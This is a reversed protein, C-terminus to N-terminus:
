KDVEAKVGLNKPTCEDCVVDGVIGGDEANGEVYEHQEHLGRRLQVTFRKDCTPCEATNDWTEPRMARIRDMDNEVESGVFHPCKISTCYFVADDHEEPNLDRSLVMEHEGCRPCGGIARTDVLEVRTGTEGFGRHFRTDSGVTDIREIGSYREDYATRIAPATM